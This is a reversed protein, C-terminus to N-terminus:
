HTTITALEAVLQDGSMPKALLFGQMYECKRRALFQWQETKEVGEAVVPIQLSQALSLVAGVIAIDESREPLGNM